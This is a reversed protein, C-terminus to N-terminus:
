ILSRRQEVTLKMCPVVKKAMDFDIVTLLNRAITLYERNDYSSWETTSFYCGGMHNENCFTNHLLIALEKEEDSSSNNIAALKQDELERKDQQYKKDLNSLQLEIDTIASM